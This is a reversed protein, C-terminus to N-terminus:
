PVYIKEIFLDHCHPESFDGVCIPDTTATPRYIDIYKPDTVETPAPASQCWPTELDRSICYTSNVIKELPFTGGYEVFRAFLDYCHFFGLGTNICSSGRWTYGAPPVPERPLLVAEASAFIDDVYFEGVSVPGKRQYLRHDNSGTGGQDTYGSPLSCGGGFDVCLVIDTLATVNPLVPPTPTVTPTPSPTPTATPTQTPSPTPSPAPTGTANPSPTETPIPTPTQTASLENATETVESAIDGCACFLLCTFPLLLKTSTPHVLVARLIHEVNM